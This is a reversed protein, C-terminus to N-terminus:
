IKVGGFLGCKDSITESQANLSLRRAAIGAKPTPKYQEAGGVVFMKQRVCPKKNEM